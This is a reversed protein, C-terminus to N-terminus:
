NIMCEDATVYLAKKKGKGLSYDQNEPVDLLTIPLSEDRKRKEIDNMNERREEDSNIISSQRHYPLLIDDTELLVCDNERSSIQCQSMIPPDMFASLTLTTMLKASDTEQM